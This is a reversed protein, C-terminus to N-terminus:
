EYTEFEYSPPYIFHILSALNYIVDFQLGEFSLAYFVSTLNLNKESTELLYFFSTLYNQRVDNKCTECEEKFEVSELIKLVLNKNFKLMKDDIEQCSKFPRDIIAFSLIGFNRFSLNHM